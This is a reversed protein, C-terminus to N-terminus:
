KVVMKKGNVVYIGKQLGEVSDGMYQGSMNFVGKVGNVPEEVNDDDIRIIVTAEDSWLPAHYGFQSDNTYNKVGGTSSAFDDGNNLEIIWRAPDDLGSAPDIGKGEANPNYIGQQATVFNPLIIGTENNWTFKDQDPVKNYWFAAKNKKSDWGLFYSYQPMKSLFFSGVFSYCYDTSLKGNTTQKNYVIEDSNEYTFTPGEYMTFSVPDDTVSETNNDNVVYAPVTYIGKYILENMESGSLEAAASMRNYLGENESKKIDFQRNFRGNANASMHPRILYPVGAHLVIDDDAVNGTTIEGHVNNGEVEEKNTLLNKSFTLVIRKEEVDRVVYTLKSLYPIQNKAKDGFLTIMDSKTLDFSLCITWWDNDTIYSRYPVFEEKSNTAYATLTFQHWGRYDHSDTVALIPVEKTLIAYLNETDSIHPNDKEDTSIGTADTTYSIEKAYRNFYTDTEENYARYGNETVDYRDVGEDTEANYDRYSGDWEYNYRKVDGIEETYTQYGNDYPEYRTEGADTSAEYARYEVPTSYIKDYTTVNGASATYPEYSNSLEYLQRNPEPNGDWLKYGENLTYYPAGGTGGMWSAWSSKLVYNVNAKLSANWVTQTTYVYEGNEDEVFSYTPEYYDVGEEIDGAKSWKSAVYPHYYEGNSGDSNDHEVYTYNKVFNGSESEIYGADHYYNGNDAEVYVYNKVSAGETNSEAIYDKVFGGNEDAVYTTIQTYTGDADPTYQLNGHEDLDNVTRTEGTEVTEAQPYLYKGDWVTNYYYDLGEPQDLNGSATVDYFSRDTKAPSTNENALYSNNADIQGDQSWTGFSGATAIANTWPDRTPDWAYWLYGYTGQTYARMMETQNPYYITAGKGDRDATAISYERTVDTYRQIAPTTCERPYHLMTVYTGNGQGNSYAERTIIGDVPEGSITNNAHYFNAGFADVHCEPADLSLAYVDKVHSDDQKFAHSEILKLGAPLTYTGYLVDGNTNISTNVDRPLVGYRPETEGKLYVGNDYVVTTDNGTTWVHDLSQMTFARTKIYMINGPICIQRFQNMNNKFFDAPITNFGEYTPLWFTRLSSGFINTLNFVILDENYEDEIEAYSLDISILQADIYSFAGDQETGVLERTGGGVAAFSQTSTEDADANFVYHGNEDFVSKNNCLDRAVPHGSITIHLLKGMKHTSKDIGEGIKNNPIEDIFLHSVAEALTNGKEVHATFTAEGLENVGQSIASGLNTGISSGIARVEDKTWGDPLILNKVSRNSFTFATQNGDVLYEVDQLDITEFGFNDLSNLATIDDANLTVTPDGSYAPGPKYNSIRLIKYERCKQIHPENGDRLKELAEALHGENVNIITVNPVPNSDDKYWTGERIEFNPQASAGLTMVLMILFLYFKKM